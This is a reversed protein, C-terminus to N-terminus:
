WSIWITISSSTTRKLRMNWSKKFYCFKNSLKFRSEEAIAPMSVKQVPYACKSLAKPGTLDCWRRWWWRWSWRFSTSSVRDNAKKHSTNEGVIWVASNKNQRRQACKGSVWTYMYGVYVYTCLSVCTNVTYLLRFDASKLKHKTKTKTSEDTAGAISLCSSENSWEEKKKEVKPKYM